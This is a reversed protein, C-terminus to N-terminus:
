RDLSFDHGFSVRKLTEIKTCLYKYDIFCKNINNNIM